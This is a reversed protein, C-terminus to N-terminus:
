AKPRGDKLKAKQEEYSLEIFRRQYDQIEKERMFRVLCERYPTQLVESVPVKMSDRLYEIATLESFISLREIGAALEIKTPERHLLKQEREVMESILKILHSALPYLERVTCNIIKKGFILAHDEDWKKGTVIPYYYGTVTRIIVGYDNTEDRSFYLRQGYVITGTFEDYTQPIVYRRRGIRIGSPLPMQSLGDSLGQYEENNLIMDKLTLREVPIIKHAM